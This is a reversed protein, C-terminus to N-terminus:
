TKGRPRMDRAATWARYAFEELTNADIDMDLIRREEVQENEAYVHLTYRISRFRRHHPLKPDIIEYEEEVNWYITEGDTKGLTGGVVYMTRIQGSEGAVIESIKRSTAEAKKVADSTMTEGM